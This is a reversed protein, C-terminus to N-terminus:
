QYQNKKQMFVFTILRFLVCVPPTAKQWWFKMRLKLMRPMLMGDLYIFMNYNNTDKELNMQIKVFDLVNRVTVAKGDKTHVETDIHNEMYRFLEEDSLSNSGIYKDQNEPPVIVSIPQYNSRFVSLVARRLLEKSSVDSVNHLNEYISM